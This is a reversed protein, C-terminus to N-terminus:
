FISGDPDYPDYPIWRAWFMARLVWIGVMTLVLGATWLPLNALQGSGGQQFLFGGWGSAIRAAFGVVLMLVVSAGLIFSALVEVDLRDSSAQGPVKQPRPRYLVKREIERKRLRHERLYPPILLAVVVITVILFGVNGLFFQAVAAFTLYAFAGVLLLILFSATRHRRRKPRDIM